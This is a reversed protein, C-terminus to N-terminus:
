TGEEMGLEQRIAQLSVETLVFHQKDFEILGQESYGGWLVVMSGRTLIEGLLKRQGALSAETAVEDEIPTFPVAAKSCNLIVADKERETLLISM